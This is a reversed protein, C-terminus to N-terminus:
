HLQRMMLRFAPDVAAEVSGAMESQTDLLHWLKGASYEFGVVKAAGGQWRIVGRDALQGGGGPYFPSQALAVKGPRADAVDTPVILTEPQEHCFLHMRGRLGCATWPIPSFQRSSSRPPPRLACSNPRRSAMAVSSTSTSPARTTSVSAPRWTPWCRRM